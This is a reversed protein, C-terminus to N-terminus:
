NDRRNIRVGKGTVTTGSDTEIFTITSGDASIAFDFSVPGVTTTFSKSGTCDSNVTFSGTGTIGRYITGNVSLTETVITGNGHGDYIVEGAAGLPAGGAFGSASLAYTGHMTANSCSPEDEAKLAPTAALLSLVAALAALRLTISIEKGM